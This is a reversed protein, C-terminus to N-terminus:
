PSSGQPVCSSPKPKLSSAKAVFGDDLMQNAVNMQTDVDHVITNLFRMHRMYVLNLGEHLKHYESTFREFFLEM